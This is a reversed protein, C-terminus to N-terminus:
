AGVAARKGDDTSRDTREARPSAREPSDPLESWVHDDGALRVPRAMPRVAQASQQELFTRSAGLDAHGEYGCPCRFTDGNRETADREGCAPCEM